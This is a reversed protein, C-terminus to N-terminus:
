LLYLSLSLSLHPSTFLFSNMGTWDTTYKEIDEADVLVGGNYSLINRFHEVDKPTVKYSNYALLYCIYMFMCSLLPPGKYLQTQTNHSETIPQCTVEKNIYLM